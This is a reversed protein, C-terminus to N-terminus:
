ATKEESDGNLAELLEEPTVTKDSVDALEIVFDVVKDEFIPAQLNSIAEPNKQYYEIVMKEQGPYRSAEAMLARNVDEQEVKIQNKEGVDSLLLGLRVRRAAIDKYEAELEEDSKGKDEEDLQDAKKAAEIQEWIAKFEADVMSEPLEFSDIKALEDMLDRKLLGHASRAYQSKLEDSIADKLEELTEKGMQKALEDDIEPVVKEEIAHLKVDFEAEKGALDANHYEEPFTVTVTVSEGPKKGIVQEEFGPIFTGSGLELKYDEGKGGAFEEGGVKGVFDIAVIDGKKCMRKTKLPNTTQRSQAIQELSQQIDEDKVESVLRELKIAKFDVESIEPLTEVDITFELDQGEDFATIEVKPQSAPRIENDTLTKQTSEQIARDLVEGMVSPGYRKKLISAPVKGPRFGPINVQTSIEKLRGQIREELSGASLVVKYARKLGEAKTETVQM